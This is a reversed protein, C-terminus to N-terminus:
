DLSESRSVATICVTIYRGRMEALIAANLVVPQLCTVSRFASTVHTTCALLDLLSINQSLNQWQRRFKTTVTPTFPILCTSSTPKSNPAGAWNRCPHLLACEQGPQQRLHSGGTDYGRLEGRGATWEFRIFM